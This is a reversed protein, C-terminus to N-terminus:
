GVGVMIKDPERVHNVWIKIKTLEQQVPTELLSQGLVSYIIVHRLPTQLMGEYVPQDTRDVEELSVLMLETPDDDESLCGVAVCTNTASVLPNGMTRPIYDSDLDSILILSNPPATKVMLNTM